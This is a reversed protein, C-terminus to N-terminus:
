RTFTSFAEIVRPLASVVGNAKQKFYVKLLVHKKLPGSSCANQSDRAQPGCAKNKNQM